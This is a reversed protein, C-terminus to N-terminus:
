PVCEMLYGGQFEIHLNHSVLIDLIINKIHLIYFNNNPSSHLKLSPHVINAIGMNLNQQRLEPLSLHRQNRIPSLWGRCLWLEGVRHAAACSSDGHGFACPSQQDSTKVKGSTVNLASRISESRQSHNLSLMQLFSSYALLSHAIRASTPLRHPQLLQLIPWPASPLPAIPGLTDWSVGAATMSHM